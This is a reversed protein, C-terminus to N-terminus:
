NHTSESFSASGQAIAPVHGPDTTAPQRIYRDSAFMYSKAGPKRPPVKGFSMYRRHAKVPVDKNLVPTAYDPRMSWLTSFPLILDANVAGIKMNQRKKKSQIKKKTNQFINSFFSTGACFNICIGLFYSRLEATKDCFM